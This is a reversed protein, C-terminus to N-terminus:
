YCDNYHFSSSLTSALHFKYKSVLHWLISESHHGLRHHRDSHSAKVSSFTIISTSPKTPWEYVGDKTCGHLLITGM